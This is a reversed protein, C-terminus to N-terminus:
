RIEQRVYVNRRPIFVHGSLEHSTDKDQLVQAGLVVFDSRTTRVLLGEITPLDDRMHFAFRKKTLGM